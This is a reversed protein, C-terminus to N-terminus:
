VMYDLPLDRPDMMGKSVLIIEKCRMKLRGQAKKVEEEDFCTAWIIIDQFILIYKEEVRMRRMVERMLAILGKMHKDTAGYIVAYVDLM